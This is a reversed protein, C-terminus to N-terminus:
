FIFDFCNRLTTNAQIAIDGLTAAGETIVINNLTTYADSCLNGGGTAKTVTVNANSQLYFIIVFSSFTLVKILITYFSKM